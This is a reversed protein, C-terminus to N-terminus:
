PIERTTLEWDVPLTTEPELDMGLKYMERNLEANYLAM